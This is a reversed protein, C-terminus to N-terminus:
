DEGSDKWDDVLKKLEDNPSIPKQLADTVAKTIKENPVTAYKEAWAKFREALAPRTELM